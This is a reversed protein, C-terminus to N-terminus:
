RIQPAFAEIAINRFRNSELVDSRRADDRDRSVRDLSQASPRVVGERGTM